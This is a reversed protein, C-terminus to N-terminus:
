TMMAGQEDVGRSAQQLRLRERAAARQRRKAERRKATLDPHSRHRRSPNQTPEEWAGLEPPQWREITGDPQEIQRFEVGSRSLAVMAANASRALWWDAGSALLERRVERQTKSLTGIPSKLEIHIPKGRHAVYCDPVGSKVGRHRQFMGAMASRPRNEIMSWFCDPPLWKEFMAKLEIQERAEHQQSQRRRQARYSQSLARALFPPTVRGDGVPRSGSVVARPMPSPRQRM